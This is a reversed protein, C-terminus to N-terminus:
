AVAVRPMQGILYHVATNYLSAPLCKVNAINFRDALNREVRFETLGRGKAVCTILAGLSTLENFSVTEEDLDFPHINKMWNESAVSLSADPASATSYLLSAPNSKSLM